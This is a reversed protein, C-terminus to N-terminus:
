CFRPDIIEELQDESLEEDEDALHECLKSSALKRWEEEQISSTAENNPGRLYRAFTDIVANVNMKRSAAAYRIAQFEMGEIRNRADIADRKVEIVVLNGERDIAMLDARKKMATTPQRTIILLDINSQDDLNFDGSNLLGPYRIILEEIDREKGSARNIVVDRFRIHKIQQDIKIDSSTNM